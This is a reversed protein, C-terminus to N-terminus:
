AAGPTKPCGRYRDLRVVNAATAQQEARPVAGQGSSPRRRLSKVFGGALLAGICIGVTLALALELLQLGTDCDWTM